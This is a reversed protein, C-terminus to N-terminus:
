NRRQRWSTLYNILLYLIIASLGGILFWFGLHAWLPLTSTSTQVATPIADMAEDAAEPLAQMTKEAGFTAIRGFSLTSRQVFEIIVSIGAVVLVIPLISRLRSKLGKVDKPAIIIYKNALKYHNVERGKKSYHFEEAVVLNGEQLKQLHYHVTSIPLDLDKALESETAEKEALHNLIKRSTNSSIVEALKKTKEEDLNVLLFNNKM